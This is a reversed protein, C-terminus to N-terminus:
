AASGLSRGRGGRGGGGGFGDGGSLGGGHEDGRGDEADGTSSGVPGAAAAAAAATLLREGDKFGSAFPDGATPTFLLPGEGEAPRLTHSLLLRAAREPTLGLSPSSSSSSSTSNVEYWPRPPLDGAAIAIEFAADTPALVTLPGEETLTTNVLPWALRVLEGLAGFGSGAGGERAAASLPFPPNLLVGAVTDPPAMVAASLRHVVGNTATIDAESVPVGEVLLSPAGVSHVPPRPPPPPPPPGEQQQQQQSALCSPSYAQSSSTRSVNLLPGALSTFQGDEFSDAYFERYYDRSLSGSTADVKYLQQSFHAGSLSLPYAGAALTHFSLLVELAGPDDQPFGPSAKIADDDPAFLTYALAAAGGGDGDLTAALSTSNLAATLLSFSPDSCLTEWITGVPPRLVRDVPFLYSPEGGEGGGHRRRVPVAISPGGVVTPTATVNAADIFQIPFLEAPVDPSKPIGYYLPSFDEGLLSPFEEGIYPTASAMTSVHYSVLATASQEDRCRVDFITGNHDAEEKGGGSGGG